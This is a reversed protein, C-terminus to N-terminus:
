EEGQMRKSFTEGPGDRVDSFESLGDLFHRLQKQSAACTSEGSSNLSIQAAHLDAATAPPAFYPLSSASTTRPAADGPLL